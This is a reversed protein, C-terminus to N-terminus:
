VKKVPEWELENNYVMPIDGDVRIITLLGYHHAKYMEETIEETRHLQYYEDILLYM